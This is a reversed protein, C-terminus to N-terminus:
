GIWEGVVSDDFINCGLWCVGIELSARCLCSALSEFHFSCEVVDGEPQYRLM